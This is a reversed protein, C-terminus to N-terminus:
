PEWAVIVTTGRGPATILQFDAGIHAARERMGVVGYHGTRSSRNKDFGTGDDKVGITLRDEACDLTVQVTHAGSHRVANSVAEQTILQLNYEVDPPLPTPYEDLKLKLHVGDPETLQRTTQAIADRLGSHPDHGDRLGSLSRRAAGLSTAADALIDELTRREDSPQLRSALAQMAMTIGSFGQILTDHLERAIRIREALILKFQERLRRIRLRYMAWAMGTLAAACLPFFWVRQYYRPEIVFAVDHAAELCAGDLNCGTVRFTFRGPPLNTYFAERRGGADIWTRDFGDLKYRFTIRTPVIFSLGTYRFAINNRGPPLAGIDGPHHSEGDVTVDEVVVPPPAFRRDFHDPDIVLLGRITSFWLRGDSTRAAVPQVGSKSELTRLVDTPSYPTSVFSHIQGAAFRQLDSRNVSFIGKSCAMWLRNHDDGVIGYIDDDFLGDLVSYSYVKGHDILRLGDGLTGVWLLHDADEYLADVHQLPISAGAERLTGSAYVRLPGNEPAIYIHQNADEGFALVQGSIAPRLDPDPQLAGAKLTAIGGSTSIWLTGVRSQFLARIANSPLGQKRTWTGDVHGHRLRNLGADTGVWLDGGDDEALAYVFNSALGNRTTLADFRHGNFRALGAGLTGVWITGQRDQLVPGTDNSPLGESTTYPTARSDLFQNLGHKTAAWLSGEHDEYLSYVTSQSLGDQPRFSEIQEGRIRSFGNKTGILVSGDHTETMTLISNDALGDAVTLRDEQNGRLRVLGDATGIWIGGNAACLITQVAASSTTSLARLVFRTGNWTSIHSSDAGVVISGDPAMCAARIDVSTLGEATGFVRIHGQTLEVLGDPTCAWINSARDTFLCQVTESPLGERRTYRTITDHQLKILGSQNTGIWLAHQDDELLHTVWVNASSLGDMEDITTFRVGDFKVLGTQTGLWLYGDQTEVLSYISAQPLGQQVQWIRHLYQSLARNPDVAYAPRALAVIALLVTSRLSLRM